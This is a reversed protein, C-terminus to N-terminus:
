LDKEIVIRLRRGAGAPHEAEIADDDGAIWRRGEDAPILVTLQGDSWRVGTNDVQDTLELSWTLAQEPDPGFRVSQELRGGAALTAAADATLRFRLMDQTLRLKMLFRGRIIRNFQIAGSASARSSSFRFCRWNT